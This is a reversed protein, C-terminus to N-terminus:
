REFLQLCTILGLGALTLLSWEPLSLDLLTWNVIACDPSGLAFVKLTELLAESQDLHFLNTSATPHPLPHAQLWLQRIASAAGLTSLLLALAAYARTGNVKPRFGWALANLVAILAVCGRQVICLSCPHLLAVKELYVSASLALMALIFALVFLHRSRASPM